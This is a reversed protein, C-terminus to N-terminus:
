FNGDATQDRLLDAKEKAALNGFAEGMTLLM